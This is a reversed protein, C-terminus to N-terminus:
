SSSITIFVVVVVVVVVVGVVIVYQLELGATPRPTQYIPHHDGPSGMSDGDDGSLLDIHKTLVTGLKYDNDEICLSGYDGQRNQVM